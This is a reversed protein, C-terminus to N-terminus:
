VQDFFPIKNNSYIIINKSLRERYYVNKMNEEKLDLDYTLVNYKGPKNFEIQGQIKM